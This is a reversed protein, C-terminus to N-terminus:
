FSLCMKRGKQTDHKRKEKKPFTLPHTLRYRQADYIAQLVFAESDFVTPLLAFNGDLVTTNKAFAVLIKVQKKVNDEVWGVHYRNMYTATDIAGYLVVSLLFPRKLALSEMLANAGAKGAQVDCSLIYEGINNVFGPTILNFSPHEERFQRIKSETEKALKGVVVVQWPFGKKAIEELMKIDGIGEGGMNLLVTFTDKLGLRKRSEQKSLQPLHQISYQLPFPCIDVKGPSMGNAIMNERGLKTPVYYKVLEENLGPVPANFVDSAYSFVPVDLDLKKLLEPIIIGGLYNTCLFFDPKHHCYWQYFSQSYHGILPPLNKLAWGSGKNDSGKDLIRELKPHALMFRWNSCAYNNWLPADCIEFLDAIVADYGMHIMADALAKAPVFHGKGTKVYIFAGKM